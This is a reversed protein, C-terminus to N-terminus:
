EKAVADHYRTMGDILDTVLERLDGRNPLTGIMGYMPATRGPLGGGKGGLLSSARKMLASVLREPLFRVAVNAARVVLKNVAKQLGPKRVAAVSAALDALFEDVIAAHVHNVTVHLSPPFHQRDFYWGRLALEDAVEYVDLGDSGIAFISMDPNGLVQIGPISKIGDRLKQTAKLVVRTIELYGEWGLYNLIAWAAAIPGGPRTGAMGPSPYIGGPWDTYVFFQCRRLEATRYLVVSAGKAAYGYKHLDASMSTVGPVGFDFDPVPHGLARVCPLTFGGVCADVHFLLGHDRAIAALERIPDVVGQPYSPASGVM